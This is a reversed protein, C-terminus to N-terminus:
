DMEKANTEIFDVEEQSLEYKQYLQLDIEHISKSWDIDSNATLDQNPVYKFKSPVIDQTIKLVSLLARFFKTKIYKCMNEAEEKTNYKGIGIFTPTSFENPFGILPPSMKEGFAGTGSAKSIFVKYDDINNNDPYRITLFEKELWRYERKLDYLGLIKYYKPEEDPKIDTKFAYPADEFARNRIEYEENAPLSTVTPKKKQIQKIRDQIYNPYTNLFKDNFKLDARGGHMINSLSEYGHKKVKNVVTRMIPDSIFEEVPQYNKNASRYTIAIGGKIDTNPFVTASVPIYNLVKFHPDNLMKNNWQKPTAGANFLFRAPTILLVDDGITYAADMFEYYIPMDKTTKREEHFPPNGIAYDFKM